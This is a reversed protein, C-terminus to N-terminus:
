REGQRKQTALLGARLRHVGLLVELLPATTEVDRDIEAYARRQLDDLGAQLLSVAERATGAEGNRQRVGDAVYRNVETLPVGLRAAIDRRSVGRVLLELTLPVPDAPVFDSDVEQASM